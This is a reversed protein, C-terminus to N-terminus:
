HTFIPNFVTPLEACREPKSTVLFRVFLDRDANVAILNNSSKVEVKKNISSFREIKFNPIGLLSLFYLATHYLITCFYHLCFKAFKKIQEWSRQDFNRIFIWDFTQPRSLSMENSCLVSKWQIKAVPCFNATSLTEGIMLTGFNRKPVLLLRRRIIM